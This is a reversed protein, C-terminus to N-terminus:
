KNLLQTVIAPAPGPARTELSQAEEVGASGVERRQSSPAPLERTLPSPLCPTPLSPFASQLSFPPFFCSFYHTRPVPNLGTELEQPPPPCPLLFSFPFLLLFFLPIPLTSM